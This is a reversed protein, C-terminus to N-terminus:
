IKTKPWSSGRSSSIAVWELIRTQFLGLCLLRAPYLGHPPFFNPMVSHGFVGIKTKTIKAVIRQVPVQELFSHSLGPEQGEETEMFICTMCCLLQAWLYNRKIQYEKGLAIPGKWQLKKVIWIRLTFQISSNSIFYLVKWMRNLQSYLQSFWTDQVGPLHILHSNGIYFAANDQSAFDDLYAIGLPQIPTEGFGRLLNGLFVYVWM